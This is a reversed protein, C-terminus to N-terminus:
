FPKNRPKCRANTTPAQDSMSWSPQLCNSFAGRAAVGFKECYRGIAIASWKRTFERLGPRWRHERAFGVLPRM